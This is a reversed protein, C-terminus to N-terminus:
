GAAMLWRWRGIMWIWGSDAVEVVRVAWYGDTMKFYLWWADDIADDVQEFLTKYIRRV